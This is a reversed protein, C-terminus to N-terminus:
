TRLRKPSFVRGAIYGAFMAAEKLLVFLFGGAARLPSLRKWRFVRYLHAAYAAVGLAAPVLLWPLLPSCLLLLLMAGWKLAIRRYRWGLSRAEGDGLGYLYYQWLFSKLTRRTEWHVVADWRTVFRMGLARMRLCLATDEGAFTLEEPYGGARLFADRRVAFSRSSPLFNEPDQAELPLTAAETCRQVWTEGELAYGGGVADISVDNLLPETLLELWLPEIRCGADTIALIDQTARAVAANRGRAINAGAEIVLTVPLMGAEHRIAEVTADTSGGDCIVIDAPLVTSARVGQFFLPIGAEENLTTLILTVPITRRARM